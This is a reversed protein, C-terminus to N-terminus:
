ITLFGIVSVAEFVTLDDKVLEMMYSKAKNTATDRLFGNIYFSLIFVLKPLNDSQGLRKMNKYATSTIAYRVGSENM